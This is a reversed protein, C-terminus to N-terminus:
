PKGIYEWYLYPIPTFRNKNNIKLIKLINKPIIIGYYESGFRDTGLYKGSGSKIALTPDVIENKDNILFAHEIPIISQVYGEIYELKKYKYALKSCNDFCRKITAYKSLKRSQEKNVNIYLKATQKFWKHYKTINDNHDFKSLMSVYKILQSM